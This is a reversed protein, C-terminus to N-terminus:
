RRALAEVREALEDGVAEWSRSAMEARATEGLRRAEDPHALAWALRDAMAAADAVPHLLGNEGDRIVDKQGCCATTVCCLGHGMAQLLALPQGEALSPLVFLAARGLIAGEQDPPFSEVVEVRGRLAEPWAALVAAAPVQVGALVFRPRVGRADLRRAAEVLTAAGKRENWTGTFVVTAPDGEAQPAPYAGNRFVVVDGPSRGYEAAVFDRDETNSLLLLDGRRLGRECQAARRAWLPGTLLAKFSNRRPKGMVAEMVRRNREEIGHSFLAVPFGRGTFVGSAPEHALVADPRLGLRRFYSWAARHWLSRHPVRGVEASGIEVFRWGRRLFAERWHYSIRGMGTHRGIEMDAVHVVTRAM